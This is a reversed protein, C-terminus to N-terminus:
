WTASWSVTLPPAQTSPSRAELAFRLTAGGGLLVGTGVLAIGVVRPIIAGLAAEYQAYSQSGQRITGDAQGWVIGGAVAAALALGTLVWAVADTYARPTPPSAIVTPAVAAAPPLEPLLLQPPPASPEARAENQEKKLAKECRELQLRAAAVQAKSTVQLLYAGYHNIALDCRGNMREAQGMAYLFDPHPDIAWGAEFDHVAGAYDKQEFRELGSRLYQAAAPLMPRLPAETASANLATLLLLLALM